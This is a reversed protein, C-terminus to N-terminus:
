THSPFSVPIQQIIGNQFSSNAQFNLCCVKKTFRLISFVVIGAPDLSYFSFYNFRVFKLAFHIVILPMPDVICGFSHTEGMCIKIFQILRLGTWGILKPFSVRFGYKHHKIILDCTVPFINGTLFLSERLHAGM